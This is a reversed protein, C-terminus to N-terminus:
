LHKPSPRRTGSTAEQQKVKRLARATYIAYLDTLHLIQAYTKREWERKGEEGEVYIPIAEKLIRAKLIPDANNLSVVDVKDVPINLEKAIELILKVEDMITVEPKDILVAIDYDSDPRELGKARSGFLYAIKVHQRKFVRSLNRYAPQTNGRPDIDKETLIGDLVKIVKEAVPLVEKVVKDLDTTPLKRYAHALINRTAAVTKIYSDIQEDVLKAEYLVQDLDRYSGPRRLGLDSVIMAIADLINQLSAYLEWRLASIETDNKPPNLKRARKICNLAEALVAKIEM